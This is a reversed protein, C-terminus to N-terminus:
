SFNTIGAQRQEIGNKKMHQQFIFDFMKLVRKWMKLSSYVALQQSLCLPACVRGQNWCSAIMSNSDEIFASSKFDSM